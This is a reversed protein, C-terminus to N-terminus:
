YICKNVEWKKNYCSREYKSQFVFRDGENETYNTSIHNFANSRINM